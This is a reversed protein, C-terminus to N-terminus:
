ISFIVAELRTREIFRIVDSFVSADDHDTGFIFSGQIGIGCDHIRKIAEKYEVVLNISKGMAKISEPTLSEFGIFLGKCGSQRALDLLARDKVIGLSAQSFWKIKLPILARFLKKAYGPSGAINDDVFFLFGPEMRSIENIVEAVPRTRYSRGYFTTVSCFDCDFPCGRTTQLTNVFFYAKRNLLERRPVRLGDLSCMGAPKYFPKLCSRKFDDLVQPWVDEAEGLVVSEAHMKAESGMMTPHIGGLM